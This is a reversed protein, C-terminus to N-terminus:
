RLAKTGPESSNGHQAQFLQGCANRSSDVNSDENNHCTTCSSIGYVNFAIAYQPKAVAGPIGVLAVILLPM